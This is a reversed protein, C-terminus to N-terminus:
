NTKSGYACLAAFSIPLGDLHYNSMVGISSPRDVLKVQQTYHDNKDIEETHAM